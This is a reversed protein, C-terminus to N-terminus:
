FAQVSWWYNAMEGTWLRQYLLADIGVAQHRRERPLNPLKTFASLSM